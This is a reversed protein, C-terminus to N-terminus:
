ANRLGDPRAPRVRRGAAAGLRRGARGGNRRVLRMQRARAEQQREGRVFSVSGLVPLGSAAALAAPTSYSTTLKARLYATGAGAGLALILVASLLILRNPKSPVRPKQPLELVSVAVTGGQSQADARLKVNERDTLLKDYASKLVDYNRALEAQQSAVQPQEAQVRAFNNLDGMIQARRSALAAATAQKDAQMARLSSWAPNPQSAAGGGTPESAAAGSMRAIQSRLAIVDPHQDTWGQAQDQALQARLQAVQARAGSPAGAVPVGPITAPTAALQGNIAAASSSAAALQSEIDSLQSRALGMRDEISGTGPLAGLYRQEFASRKQDADQLAAGREALQRDMFKLSQQAEAIDSAGNGQVFRDVLRGVIQQALAANEADTLGGGSLTAAITFLNDQVSKVDIATQLRTIVAAQSRPNTAQRELPTGKIVEALNEGALLTQRVSDIGAQQDNGTIGVAQPLISRPQVFVKATSTYANPILSIVLWGALAIAWAVGLALWRRRWVIHIALRAEHLIANM